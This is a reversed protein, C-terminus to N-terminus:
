VAVRLYLYRLNGGMISMASRQLASAYIRWKRYVYWGEPTHFSVLFGQQCTCFRNTAVQTLIVPIKYVAVASDVVRHYCGVGLPTPKPKM